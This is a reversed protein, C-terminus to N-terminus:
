RGGFTMRFARLSFSLLPAVSRWSRSRALLTSMLADYALVGGPEPPHAATIATSM